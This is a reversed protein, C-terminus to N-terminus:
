VLKELRQIITYGSESERKRWGGGRSHFFNKEQSTYRLHTAVTGGIQTEKANSGKLSFKQGM